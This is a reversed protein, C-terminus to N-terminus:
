NNSSPSPIIASADFYKEPFIAPAITSIPEYLYSSEKSSQWWELPTLREIRSLLGLLSSLVLANLFLGLLLGAFRNLGGLSINNAIKTVVYGSAYVVLMILLATLIFAAVTATLQSCDLYNMILPEMLHSFAFAGWIALGVSLLACVQKILGRKYGKFGGWLLLGGLIIDLVM